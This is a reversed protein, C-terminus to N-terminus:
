LDNYKRWTVEIIMSMSNDINSKDICWCLDLDEQHIWTIPIVDVTSEEEFQVVAFSAM